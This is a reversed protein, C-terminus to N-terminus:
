FRNPLVANVNLRHEARPLYIDEAASVDALREYRHERRDSKRDDHKVVTLRQRLRFVIRLRAFDDESIKGTNVIFYRDRLVIINHDHRGPMM